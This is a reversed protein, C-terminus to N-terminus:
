SDWQALLNKMQERVEDSDLGPRFGVTLHGLAGHAMAVHGLSGSGRIHQVQGLNLREGIAEFGNLAQQTWNAVLDPAEVGWAEIDAENQGSACLAFQLSDLQPLRALASRPRARGGNDEPAAHSEDFSQAFELLLADVSAFIRRPHDPDPPLM